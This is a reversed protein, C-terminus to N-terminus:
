HGDRLRDRGGGPHHPRGRALQEAYRSGAFTDDGVGNYGGGHVLTGDRFHLRSNNMSVAQTSIVAAQYGPGPDDAAWLPMDHAMDPGREVSRDDYTFVYTDYLDGGLNDQGGAIVVRNGPRPYCLVQNRGGDAGPLGGSGTGPPIRHPAIEYSSQAPDGAVTLVLISQRGIGTGFYSEGDSQSNGGAIVVKGNGLVALGLGNARGGHSGPIRDDEGPVTPLPAGTRWVGTGPDFFDTATALVSLDADGQFDPVWFTHGGVVLVRGDNLRAAHGFVHGSSLTTETHGGTRRTVDWKGRVVATGGTPVGTDPDVEAVRSTQTVDYTFAQRSGTLTAVGDEGVGGAILLRGDRLRNVPMFLWQQRVPLDGTRRWTEDEPDYRYSLRSAAGTAGDVAGGAVVVSGDRLVGACALRDMPKAAPVRATEHFRRTRVDYRFVRNSDGPEDDSDGGVWLVKRGKIKVGAVAHKRVPLTNDSLIWKRGPTMDM